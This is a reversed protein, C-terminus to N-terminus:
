PRSPWPSLAFWRCGFSGGLMSAGYLGEVRQGVQFSPEELQGQGIDEVCDCVRREAVRADAGTQDCFEGGCTRAPRNRGLSHASQARRELARAGVGEEEDCDLSQHCTRRLVSTSFSRLRANVQLHVDLRATPGSATTTGRTGSKTHGILVEPIGDVGSGKECTSM